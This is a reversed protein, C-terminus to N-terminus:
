LNAIPDNLSSNSFLLLSHYIEVPDSLLIPRDGEFIGPLIHYEIRQTDTRLRIFERQGEGHLRINEILELRGEQIKM